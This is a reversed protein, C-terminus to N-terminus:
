ISIPWKFIGLPNFTLLLQIFLIYVVGVPDFMENLNSKKYNNSGIRNMTFFDRLSKINIAISHVIHIRGWRPRVHKYCRNKLM